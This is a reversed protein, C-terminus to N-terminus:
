WPFLFLGSTFRDGEVRHPLKNELQRADFFARGVARRGKAGTPSNQRSKMLVTFRENQLHLISSSFYQRSGVGPGEINRIMVATIRQHEDTERIYLYAKQSTQDFVSPPTQGRLAVYLSAFRTAVLDRGTLNWNQFGAAGPAIRM